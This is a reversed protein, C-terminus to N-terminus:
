CDQATGSQAVQADSSLLGVKAMIYLNRSINSFYLKKGYVPNLPTSFIIFLNFQIFM